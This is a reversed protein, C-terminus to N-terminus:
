VSAQIDRTSRFAAMTLIAGAVGPVLVSEPVEKMRSLLMVRPKGSAAGRNTSYTLLVHTFSIRGLMWGYEGLKDPLKQGLLLLSFEPM